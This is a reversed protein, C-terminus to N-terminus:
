VGFGKKEVLNQRPACVVESLWNLGQIYHETVLFSVVFGENPQGKGCPQYAARDVVEDVMEDFFYLCLIAIVECFM